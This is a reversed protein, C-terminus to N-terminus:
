EPVAPALMQKVTSVLEDQDFPKTIYINAGTYYGTEKDTPKDRSTVMIIPIDSYERDFKLLRCVKYGDLGPMMVDLVIVDPRLERAKTLAQLGDEAEHCEMGEKELLDRVLRRIYKDDDAILVRM